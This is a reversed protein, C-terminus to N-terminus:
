PTLPILPPRNRRLGWSEWAHWLIFGLMVAATVACVVWLITRMRCRFRDRGSVEQGGGLSKFM